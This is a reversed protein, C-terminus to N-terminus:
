EIVWWKIIQKAINGRVFTALGETNHAVLNLTAIWEAWYEGKKDTTPSEWLHSRTNVDGAIVAERGRVRVNDLLEDSKATYEAIDINPSIYCCYMDMNGFDVCIYGKETRINAITIKNNLLLTAIDIDERKDTIWKKGKIISKNPEGVNKDRTRHGNGLCRFCRGIYIRERVRCEVCGVKVKRQRILDTAKKRPLEITTTQEEYKGKTIARVNIDRQELKTEKAMAEILEKEKTAPDIGMVFVIM